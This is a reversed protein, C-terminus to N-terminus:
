KFRSFRSIDRFPISRKRTNQRKTLSDSREARPEFYHNPKKVAFPAFSAFSSLEPSQQKELKM